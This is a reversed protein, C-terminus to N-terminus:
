QILQKPAQIRPPVFLRESWVRFNRVGSEHGRGGSMIIMERQGILSGGNPPVRASTFPQDPGFSTM